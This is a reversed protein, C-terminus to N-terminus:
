RPFFDENVQHPHENFSYIDLLKPNEKKIYKIQHGWADWSCVRPPFFHGLTTFRRPM